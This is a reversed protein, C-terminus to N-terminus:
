FALRGDCTRLWCCGAMRVQVTHYLLYRAQDARPLDRGDSPAPGVPMNSINAPAAVPPLLPVLSSDPSYSAVSLKHVYAGRRHSSLCVCVIDAHNLYGWQECSLQVNNTLAGATGGACGVGLCLCDPVNGIGASELSYGCEGFDALGGMSLPLCASGVECWGM